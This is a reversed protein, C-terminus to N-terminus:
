KEEASEKEDRRAESDRVVVGSRRCPTLRPTVSFPFVMNRGRERNLLDRSMEWAGRTKM